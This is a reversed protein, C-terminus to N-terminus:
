RKIFQSLDLPMSHDLRIPRSAITGSEGQNLNDGASLHRLKPQDIPQGTANQSHQFPNLYTTYYIIDDYAPRTLVVRLDSIALDCSQNNWAGVVVDHARSGVM